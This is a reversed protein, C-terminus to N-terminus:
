PTYIAANLVRQVFIPNVGIDNSATTLARRNPRLQSRTQEILRQYHPVADLSDGHMAWLTRWNQCFGRLLRTYELVLGPLNSPNATFDAILDEVLADCEGPAMVTSRAFKELKLDPSHQTEYPVQISSPAVKGAICQEVLDWFKASGPTDIVLHVRSESGSNIVNHRRWADFIWATGAAMHVQENGCVFTVSPNTTIPIHIRIRSYWHYNFDVHLKVEAGPALRMLRSRSLVEDFSAMVQQMYHCQSLHPTTAKPGDFDDNNGGSISILAVASNGPISNPHPMWATESIHALEARLQKADFQFPLQVFPQPLKM